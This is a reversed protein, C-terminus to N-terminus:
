ACPIDCQSCERALTVKPEFPSGPLNFNTRARISVPPTRAGRHIPQAGMM